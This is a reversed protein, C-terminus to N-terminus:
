RLSRLLSEPRWQIGKRYAAYGLMVLASLVLAVTTTAGTPPAKFVGAVVPQAVSVNVTNGFVNTMTRDSGAPLSSNVKVSFTKEVTGNSPITTQPWALSLSGTHFMGDGFNQLMSLKLIDSIDDQFIFNTAAANGTNRVTLTYVIVDGARAITTTADVNQTQNFARKSLTLNINGGAVQAVFVTAQANVSGANDATATALNIITQNTTSNATAQFHLTRSQGPNLSGVFYTGGTFDGSVNTLGAPINDNIRVNNATVNGSNTVTIRFQVSDNNSANVFSSFGSNTTINRVEKTLNLFPSGGGGGGGSRNVVVTATDTANGANTSTANATNTWTSSGIPFSGESAVRATIHFTHSTGSNLNGVNTQLSGSVLSFNNPLVDTVVINQVNGNHASVQIQFQVQDGPNASVSEVSATQGQTVNRVTKILSITPNTVNCTRNAMVTASDNVTGANASTVSVTNSLTTSGCAIDSNVVATLTVTQNSGSAINGLNHTGTSGTIFTMGAPLTDTLVVGQSATNGSATVQIQFQVIEGANASISKIFTSQNQSVNRVLKVVSINSTSPAAITVVANASASASNQSSTLTATNTLTSSGVSFESAAAVRVRIVLEKSQGSAFNGLSVNSITNSQPAGDITFSNDFILRSPLNDTFVVNNVPGNNARVVIQFAIQDGPNAATSSVFTNQGQSINRVAKTISVTGPQPAPAPPPTTVVVIPTYGFDHNFGCTSFAVSDDTTRTYSTPVTHSVRYSDQPVNAFRYFGVSNTQVTALTRGSSDEGRVERNAQLQDNGDFVGNANHDIFVRGTVDAICPGTPTPTPTPTVPCSRNLTVSVNQSSNNGSNVSGSATNFGNASVSWNISTNAFVGFDAHGNSNTTRTTGNGFNQGITVTAGSVPAGPPCGDSVAFVLSVFDPGAQPCGGNTRNLTYSVSQNSTLDITDTDISEHDDAEIHLHFSGPNLETFSARGNADTFLQAGSDPGNTITVKAQIPGCADSVTVDLQLNNTAQTVGVFSIMLAAVLALAVVKSTTQKKIITQWM